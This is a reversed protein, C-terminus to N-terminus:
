RRWTWSDRAYRDAELREAAEIECPRYGKSTWAGGFELRLSKAVLDTLADIGVDGVLERLTAPAVHLPRNGGLRVLVPQDDELLISGHQLLVGELRAQASGV